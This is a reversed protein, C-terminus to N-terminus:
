EKESPHRSEYFEIDDEKVLKKMIKILNLQLESEFSGVNYTYFEIKVNKIFDLYDRLGNKTISIGM